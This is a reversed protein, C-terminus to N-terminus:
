FSTGAVSGVAYFGTILHVGMVLAYVGLAVGLCYRTVRRHAFSFLVIAALAGVLLKVALFQFNGIDLLTAMLHNGETAIGNRVWIITLLADLVNLSFLLVIQNLLHM